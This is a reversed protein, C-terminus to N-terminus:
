VSVGGQLRTKTGNEENINFTSHVNLSEFWTRCMEKPRQDAPVNNWNTNDEQTIAVDAQSNVILARLMRLKATDDENSSKPYTNLQISPVRVQQDQKALMRDGHEASPDWDDEETEEELLRHQRTTKYKNYRREKPGREQSNVM